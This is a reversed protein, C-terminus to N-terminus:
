DFRGRSVLGMCGQWFMLVRRCHRPLHSHSFPVLSSWFYDTYTLSPLVCLLTTSPTYPRDVAANAGRPRLYVALIQFCRQLQKNHKSICMKLIGFLVTVLTKATQICSVLVSSTCILVSSACQAIRLWLSFLLIWCWDKRAKLRRMWGHASRKVHM